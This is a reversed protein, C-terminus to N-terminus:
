GVVRLVTHLKTLYKPRNIQKHRDRILGMGCPWRYVLEYKTWM